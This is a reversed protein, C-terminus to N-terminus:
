GMGLPKQWKLRKLPWGRGWFNQFFNKKFFKRFFFNEPNENSPCFVRSMPTNIYRIPLGLQSSKFFYIYSPKKPYRFYGRKQPSQPRPHGSIAFVRLFQNLIISVFGRLWLQNYKMIKVPNVNCWNLFFSSNFLKDWNERTVPKKLSRSFINQAYTIKWEFLFFLICITDLISM